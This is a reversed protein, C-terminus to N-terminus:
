TAIHQSRCAVSAEAQQIGAMERTSIVECLEQVGNPGPDLIEFIQPM